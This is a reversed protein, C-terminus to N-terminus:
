HSISRAVCERALGGKQDGKQDAEQDGDQEDSEQDRLAFFEVAWKAQAQIADAAHSTMNKVRRPLETFMKEQLDQDMAWGAKNKSKMYINKVVVKLDAAKFRLNPQLKRLAMLMPGHTKIKEVDRKAKKVETHDDYACWTKRKAFPAITKELEEAGGQYVERADGVEEEVEDMAARGERHSGQDRRGGHGRGRGRSPM